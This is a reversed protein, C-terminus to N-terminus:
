IIQGVCHFHVTTTTGDFRGVSPQALSPHSIKITMASMGVGAAWGGNSGGDNGSGGGCWWWV